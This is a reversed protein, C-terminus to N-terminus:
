RTLRVRREQYTELTPCGVVLRIDDYDRDTWAIDTWDEAPGDMGPPRDEWGYYMYKGKSCVHDARVPTRNKGEPIIGGESQPKCQNINRCLVTELVQNGGLDYEYEGREEITDTYYEFRLARPDDWRSPDERAFRVNFLKYSLSQGDDCRPMEYTYKTGANDAIATMQTRAEDRSGNGEVKTPDFCYVYVRNYDGAENDLESVVPPKYVERPEAVRVTSVVGIKVSSPMGPVAALITVPVEGKVKVTFDIDSQWEAEIKLAEIWDGAGYRQETAQRVRKLYAKPNGHPGLQAGSLAAMDAEAQVFSRVNVARGYDVAAGVSGLVALSVVAFTIAINGQRAQVFNRM